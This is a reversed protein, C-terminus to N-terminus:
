NAGKSNPSHMHKRIAPIIGHPIFMIVLMLLIGFAILYVVGGVTYELINETATLLIAGVIPGALIGPGGILSMLLAELSLTISFASSPVLFQVSFAFLTGTMGAFFASVLFSTFKYKATNVGITEALTEDDRISHLAMGFKSSSVLSYGAITAIMVLLSIYYLDNFSVDRAPAFVIGSGGGMQPINNIITQFVVTVTLTAIAFLLRRLKMAIVGLVPSVAAAMLGGFPVGLLAYAPFQNGFLVASYAGIGYLAAHGLSYYSTQGGMIDWALAFAIVSALDFAVVIYFEAVGTTPLLFPLGLGLIAVVTWRNKPIRVISWM